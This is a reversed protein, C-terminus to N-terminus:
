KGPPALAYMMVPYMGAPFDTQEEELIIELGAQEFIHRMLRNSRTVSSDDEDKLLDAKETKFQVNEKIFILGGPRLSESCRRLFKALDEDTLYIIVWQVWICDYRGAQPTFDQLSSCYLEGLHARKEALFEPAADLLRQNGEVLDVQAFINSLFHKTVRGIGAGGDLAHGTQLPCGAEDRLTRVKDYFRVSDKVDPPDLHAFGGLVGNVTSPCNDVYWEEALKYWAIGGDALQSKWFAATKTSFEVYSTGTEKSVAIQESAPPKAM